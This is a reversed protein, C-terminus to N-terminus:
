MSSPVCSHHTFVMISKPSCTARQFLRKVRFVDKKSTQQDPRISSSLNRNTRWWTANFRARSVSSVTQAIFHDNGDVTFIKQSTNVWLCRQMCVFVRQRGPVLILCTRADSAIADNSGDYRLSWADDPVAEAHTQSLLYFFLFLAFKKALPWRQDTFRVNTACNSFWIMCNMRRFQAQRNPSHKSNVPTRPLPWKTIPKRSSRGDLAKPTPVRYPIQYHTTLDWRPEACLGQRLRRRCNMLNTDIRRCAAISITM